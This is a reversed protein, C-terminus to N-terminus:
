RNRARARGRYALMVMSRCFGGIRAKSQHGLPSDDLETVLTFPGKNPKRVARKIFLDPCQEHLHARLPEDAFSTNLAVVAIPEVGEELLEPVVPLAPAPGPLPLREPALQADVRRVFTADDLQQENEPHWVV